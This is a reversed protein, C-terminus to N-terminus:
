GNAFGLRNRPLDEPFPPLMKPTGPSVKDRRKDYEGRFLVYAAPKRDKENMVHAVTGRKKIEREEQQLM